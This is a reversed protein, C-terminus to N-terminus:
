NARLGTPPKPGPGAPACSEGSGGIAQSITRLLDTEAATPFHTGVCPVVSDALASAPMRSVKFEAPIAVPGSTSVADTEAAPWENGSFYWDGYLTGDIKLGDNESGHLGPVYHHINNEINGSPSYQSGGIQLTLGAAGGEIWGWGYIVNNVFDVRTTQYRIKPQRENNRAYVNRYVTIGDRATSSESYHQSLLNDTLLSNSLTVNYVDGYMDVSGDGSATMTLHDLIINYIPAGSSGDLEWIDKTEIKIGDGVARINNIIIDHVAIRSKAELVLRQGPVNLTIGPSPATSGDITIYSESIRLTSTLDISGGVDFVIYRCGSSTADRFSGAGSDNLNTVHYSQPSGSPCDNAGQTISGFGVYEATASQGAFIALVFTLLTLPFLPAWVTM